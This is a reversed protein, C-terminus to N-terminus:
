QVYRAVQDHMEKGPPREYPLLVGLEWLWTASVQQERRLGIRCSVDNAELHGKVM